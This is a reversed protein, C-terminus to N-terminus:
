TTATDPVFASESDPEALPNKGQGCYEGCQQLLKAVIGTWGTQHSAGLGAGNDGHFYEFFLLHDRWHPDHQFIDTGGYVPRMGQRDRDFIDILRHSLETSIEWLTLLNGSGTPFEVLFDDGLYYHFHQLAEILLYNLPFWVPGRWNSNGGFVGSRSEAPEYAIRYETEGVRLEYPEREYVKSLSRIGHPSLFENEDLMRHLIRRLKEPWIISLMRRGDVGPTRIAAVNARLEPRNDIFWEIRRRFDPLSALSSPELTAVALLPILGVASRVRLPFHDGNPLRLVDYYFGDEEDWLGFANPGISNMADAIYLFHEFFKSAIDEYSDNYKALEVAITLLDLSYVGMWSTADSQDLTGGEPLQANRDFVGINDLGLFGGQFVNNGDVDRRNVWWTFNMLLKQFVRELFVPDRRGTMKEEIQYIRLAAWAQVPPNVDGFAWEYAPIQGNPHMHWERTLLLLQKKAFEPDILAFTVVHFALDWAAFWPYEWNDPMSFVDESFLHRWASNRGELREPPPPPQLPDGRLWDRVVYFYYQKSWLMGAFARRQLRRREDTLAYPNVGAYFEDAERARSELTAAFAPGFPVAEDLLDTLRLRITASGGPPLELIYRAAAKTGFAAPNVADHRGKVVYADIGDKVFQARNPQGFLRELNTENETFLLECDGECYLRRRGLDPHDALISKTGRAALSPRPNGAAWSWTNRFWLTPLVHLRRSTTGRNIAEIEIALDEPATKAYTVYVDAYENDAFIGTDLLEYEPDNKTRRANEAVLEEYPFAGWPYKYLAKMYSHTPTGDLYFYYEKVDEGHNGQPGTLGFFREKLIPDRENWLALAFCLRQHTDSFGFIGDEGWRYARSRAHDHPLYEWAEGTASYDERVTGWQRESVYPGWRQWYAMRLRQEELRAYEASGREM